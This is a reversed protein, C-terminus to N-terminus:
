AKYIKNPKEFDDLDVNDADFNFNILSNQLNMLKNYLKKNFKIEEYIEKVLKKSLRREEFEFHNFLINLTQDIFLLLIPLPMEINDTPKGIKKQEDIIIKEYKNQMEQMKTVFKDLTLNNYNNLIRSFKKNINLIEIITRIDSDTDTIIQSNLIGREVNEITQTYILNIEKLTSLFLRNEQTKEMNSSITILPSNILKQVFELTKYFKSNPYEFTNDSVIRYLSNEKKIVMDKYLLKDFLEKKFSVYVPTTKNSFVNKFIISQNYLHSHELSYFLITSNNLFNKVFIFDKYSGIFTKLNEISDDLFSIRIIEYNKINTIREFAIKKYADSFSIGLEHYSNIIDQLMDIVKEKTLIEVNYLKKNYIDDFTIISAIEKFKINLLDNVFLGNKIFLENNDFKINRIIPSNKFNIEKYIDDKEINIKNHKLFLLLSNMLSVRQERVKILNILQVIYKSLPEDYDDNELVNFLEDFLFDLEANFFIMYKECKKNFPFNVISMSVKKFSKRTTSLHKFLSSRLEETSKVKSITEELENISQHMEIIWKKFDEKNIFNIKQM